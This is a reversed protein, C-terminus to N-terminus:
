VSGYNQSSISPVADYGDVGEVIAPAAGIKDYGARGASSDNQPVKEYGTTSPVKDYANRILGLYTDTPTQVAGIQGYENAEPEAGDDRASVMEVGPKDPKTERGRAVKRAAFIALFIILVLGLISFIAIVAIQWPPTPSTTTTSTNTEPDTSTETSTEAASAMRSATSTSAVATATPVLESGREVNVAVDFAIPSNADGVEIADVVSPAFLAVDEVFQDACDLTQDGFTVTRTRFDFLLDVTLDDGLPMQKGGCKAFMAGDIWMVRPHFETTRTVIGKTKAVLMSTHFRFVLLESGTMETPVTSLTLTLAVSLPGFMPEFTEIFSSNGPSVSFRKSVTSTSPAFQLDQNLLRVDVLVPQLSPNCASNLFLTSSTTCAAVVVESAGVGATLATLGSWRETAAAHRVLVTEGTLVDIVEIASTGTPGNLSDYGGGVVVIFRSHVGSAAVLGGTHALEFSQHVLQGGALLEFVDVKRSLASARLLMNSPEPELQEAGGIFWGRRDLAVAAMAFRGASLRAVSASTGGLPITSVTSTVAIENDMQTVGGAQLITDGLLVFSSFLDPRVTASLTTNEDVGVRVITTAGEFATLNKIGGCVFFVGDRELVTSAPAIIDDARELPTTIPFALDGISLVAGGVITANTASPLVPAAWRLGKAQQRTIVSSTDANTVDSFVVTDNDRLFGVAGGKSSWFAGFPAAAQPTLTLTSVNVDSGNLAFVNSIPQNRVFVFPWSLCKAEGKFPMVLVDVGNIPGLVTLPTPVPVDEAHDSEDPFDFHRAAWEGGTWEMAFLGPADNGNGAFLLTWGFHLVRVQKLETLAIHHHPLSEDHEGFDSHPLVKFAELRNNSVKATVIEVTTSVSGSETGGAVVLHATEGDRIAAIVVDSRNPTATVSSVDAISWVVSSENAMAQLHIIEVAVSPEGGAVVFTLDRESDLRLQPTADFGTPNARPTWCTAQMCTNPVSTVNAPDATVLLPPAGPRLVLVIGVDNDSRASHAIMLFRERETEAVAEQENGVSLLPRMETHLEYRIKFTRDVAISRIVVHMGESRAYLFVLSVHQHEDAGSGHFGDSVAVVQLWGVDVAFTSNVSGDLSVLSAEARDVVFFLADSNSVPFVLKESQGLGFLRTLHESPTSHADGPNCPTFAGVVVFLGVVVFFLM